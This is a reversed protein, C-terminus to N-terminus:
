RRLGPVAAHPRRRAARFAEALLIFCGGGVVFRGFAAQDEVQRVVFSGRPEFVFYAASAAGLVLALLGPGLGGCWTAFLFAPFHTIFPARDGFVPDLLRRAATALVVSLVAVGFRRVPSPISRVMEIG